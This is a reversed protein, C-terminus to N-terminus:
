LFHRHIIHLLEQEPVLLHHFHNLKDIAYGGQFLSLMQKATGSTMAKKGITDKDRLTSSLQSFLTIKNKHYILSAIRQFLSLKQRATGSAMTKKGITDKINFFAPQFPLNQKRYILSVIGQFLLLMQLASSCRTANNVLHIKNN